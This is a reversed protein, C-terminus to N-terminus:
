LTVRVAPPVDARRKRLHEVAAEEAARFTERVKEEAANDPLEHGLGYPKGDDIEIWIKM